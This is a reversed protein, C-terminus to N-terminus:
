RWFGTPSAASPSICGRLFICSRGDISDAVVDEGALEHALAKEVIGVEVEPLTTALKVLDVAPFGCHGEDTAEQLAFSIGARMRQPSERTIGLKMAIADTTRFGIGRIDRALRYPDETM